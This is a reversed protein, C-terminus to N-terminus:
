GVSEFIVRHARSQDKEKSNADDNRMYVSVESLRSDLLIPVSPAWYRASAKFFLVTLIGRNKERM